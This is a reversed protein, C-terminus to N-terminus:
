KLDSSSKGVDALTVGSGYDATTKKVPINCRYPGNDPKFDAAQWGNATAQEVNFCPSPAAGPTLDQAAQLGGATWATEKVATDYLCKRTLDSGCSAASKAFLLWSSFARVAPTTLAVDPAYTAYLKKLDEMAPETSENPLVGSLDVLNNQKEASPGLLDLFPQGYANNTPDIWDLKYNMGSLVSELKALQKYEGYFILGKVGKNKISQAYPTWDSVGSAPYLDNYVFKGGAAEVSEVQMEGLVKTVPSDGNIIGVKDASDPYADNVLWYRFQYYPMYGLKQAPAAQVLLDSGLEAVQSTQAAFNPLLCGLREKTGLGDLAAGGGVLAFDEKCAATVAPRVAMFRTDHVTAVLKRGNIGGNDNCWATFVKAADGFESNKTFGVDSMVGISIQDDTVGLATAGKASGDQCVDSLDGFSSSVASSGSGGGAASEESGGGNDSRGSCGAVFAVIVILAALIRQPRM